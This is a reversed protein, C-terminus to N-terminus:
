DGENFYAVLDILEKDAIKRWKINREKMIAIMKPGHNWLATAM